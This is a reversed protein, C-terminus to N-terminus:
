LSVTNGKGKKGLSRPGKHLRAVRERSLIAPLGLLQAASRLPAPFRLAEDLDREYRLVSLVAAAVQWVVCLM